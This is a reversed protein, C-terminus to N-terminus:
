CNNPSRPETTTPALLLCCCKYLYVPFNKLTCMMSLLYTHTAIQIHLWCQILCHAIIHTSLLRTTYLWVTFRAKPNIIGKPLM